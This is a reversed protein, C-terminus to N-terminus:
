SNRNLSVFRASVSRYGFNVFVSCYSAVVQATIVYGYLEKGLVRILYPYTVLPVLMVFVQLITIFSLNQFITKNNKVLSNLDKIKLM